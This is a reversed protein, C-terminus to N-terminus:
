STQMNFVDPLWAYPFALSCFDYNYWSANSSKGTLDFYPIDVILNKVKTLTINMYDCSLPMNISLVEFNGDIDLLSDKLRVIDNGQLIFFPASIINLRESYALKKRLEYLARNKAEYTFEIVPISAGNNPLYLIDGIRDTNFNRVPPQTLHPFGNPYRNVVADYNKHGRWIERVDSHENLITPLDGGGPFQNIYRPKGQGNVMKGKERIELGNETLKVDSINTISSSTNGGIVRVHNSLENEEFQSNAGAYLNNRQEKDSYTIVPELVDYADYEFNENTNMEQPYKRKKLVFNGFRDFYPITDLLYAIEKVASWVNDGAGFTLDNRLLNNLEAGYIHDIWLSFPADLNRNDIIAFELRDVRTFKSLDPTKLILKRWTNVPLVEGEVVVSGAIEGFPIEVREGSEDIIWMSIVSDPIYQSAKVWIAIANVTSIDIPITYFKKAFIGKLNIDNEIKFSSTGEAKDLFDITLTAGNRVTWSDYQPPEANELLVYNEAIDPDIRINSEKEGGNILLTKISETMVTGRQIIVDSVFKGKRSGYLIEKSSCQLRTVPFDTLTHITEFYTLVFYGLQYFEFEQKNDLKLGIHIKLRKDLWWKFNTDSTFNAGWNNVGTHNAVELDLICRVDQETNISFNGNVSSLGNPLLKQEIIAEDILIFDKDKKSYELLDIKIAITKPNESVLTELYEKSASM